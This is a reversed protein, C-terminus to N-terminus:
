IAALASGAEPALSRAFGTPTAGAFEHFDRIMHAQDYYGASYAIDTWRAAEDRQLLRLARNFRMIRAVVKPPLGVHERFKEILHKRSWGIEAAIAGISAAGRTEALRRWAWAVGPAAERGAALRPLLFADILEFRRQWTPALRLQDVLTRADAGFIEDLEVIRNALQHMPLGFFRYAALPTLDVQVGMGGAGIDAASPADFLGAVFTTHADGTGPAAGADRTYMPAGFGIIVPIFMGPLHRDVGYARQDVWGEYGRVLSGAIAPHAARRMVDFPFEAATLTPM